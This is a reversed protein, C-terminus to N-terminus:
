LMAKLTSKDPVKLQLMASAAAMDAPVPAILQLRKGTCPHQIILSAAHLAQRNIWPGQLGYVDDGIIAHGAHALHVRIQHTRGTHPKAIVFAAGRTMYMAETAVLGATFGNLAAAENRDVVVFDTQSADGNYVVARAIKQAPHRDIPADVRFRIQTPAGTTIAVYSKKATRASCRVLCSSLGLYGILRNVMSGGTYRHKPASIVGAPKNVAIIDEDEYIVEVPDLDAVLPIARQAMKFAARVRVVPLHLIDAVEEPSRKIPQGDADVQRFATSICTKRLQIEAEAADALLSAIAGQDNNTAHWAQWSILDPCCKQFHRELVPLRQIQQGCAPCLHSVKPKHHWATLTQPQQDSRGHGAAKAVTGRVSMHTCTTATHWRRHWLSLEKHRYLQLLSGRCRFRALSARLSLHM